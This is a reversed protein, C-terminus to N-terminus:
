HHSVRQKASTRYFELYVDDINYGFTKGERHVWQLFTFAMDYEQSTLKEEILYLCEDPHYSGSASVAQRILSSLKRSLNM